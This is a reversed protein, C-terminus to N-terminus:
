KTFVGLPFDLGGWHRFRFNSSQGPEAEPRWLSKKRRYFHAAVYQFREALKSIEERTKLEPCVASCWKMRLGLKGLFNEKPRYFVVFHSPLPGMFKRINELKEDVAM